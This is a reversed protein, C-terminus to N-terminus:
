SPTSPPTAPSGEAAAAARVRELVAPGYRELKVVGVGSVTGLAAADPPRASAIERLTADSFVMYAPIGAESATASRWERLAEFLARDQQPLDEVARRPRSARDSASQRIDRRLTVERDGRLIEWGVPTLSLGGYDADVQLAGAALLHRALALWVPRSLERGIGFTTLREHGWRRIRATNAGLLIDVSQAAGFRQGRERDLRAVTSLFKQAPVTADMTEPPHLCTDCNGCVGVAGDPGVYREGFYALLNARRCGATECLALMAELHRTSARRFAEDGDSRAIRLRQQVVDQLGYVMWAVAPAGDRGARGTEQYYSEVSQPMATHAVFRVDPKDIGMGFAVTAVMVVGEEMLFRRQHGARVADSLGAHYPLAEIGAATLDACRRDVEARTPCYVIGAEGRHESLFAALQRGVSTRSEIRYSINPRDFSSVFVRARELGLRSCIEERTEVTATATLAVRPVAPWREALVRLRLYEPRFDHGWQSVCHAEDIAFLSVQVRSLLDLMGQSTLREPAVYLLDLRGALLERVTQDREEPTCASNLMRARVGAQHLADVQNQMLSILPSVVVGTGPRVLAPVQYCLSKGGGTPMLVLADGGSCVHEVIEAQQGRFESYGFVRRLIETARDM